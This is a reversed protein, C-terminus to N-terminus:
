LHTVDGAGDGVGSVDKAEGFEFTHLRVWALEASPGELERGM